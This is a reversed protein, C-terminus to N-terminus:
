GLIEKLVAMRVAVSNMAYETVEDDSRRKRVLLVDKQMALIENMPVVTQMRSSYVVTKGEAKFSTSERIKVSDRLENLMWSPIRDEPKSILDITVDYHALLPLLSHVTRSERLNGVFAIEGQLKKKMWFEFFYSLAATPHQNGGDGANIVPISASEAILAAAGDRQHRIVVADAVVSLIRGVHYLSEEKFLEPAILHGYNVPSGGLRNISSIFFSSTRLSPSFFLTIVSKGKLVDLPKGKELAALMEKSTKMLAEIDNKELSRTSVLDKGKLGM